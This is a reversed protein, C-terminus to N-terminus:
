RKSERGTKPRGEPGAELVDRSRRVLADAGPFALAAFGGLFSYASLALAFLLAYSGILSM